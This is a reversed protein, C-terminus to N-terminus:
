NMHEECTHAARNAKLREAEIEKACVSCTGYTGADIAALAAKLENYRIELQKVIGTREEYVELRDAAEFEDGALVSDAPPPVAEWDQENEPNRRGVTQLEEEVTNLEEQLLQKAHTTDIM